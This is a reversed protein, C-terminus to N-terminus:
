SCDEKLSPESLSSLIVVGTATIALASLIANGLYGVQAYVVGAIAGGLGGGVQGIAVVLSMLSGRRADPVLTTLLAQLPSLRLALLMMILFFVVYASLIDFVVFPTM